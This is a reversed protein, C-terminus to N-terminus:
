REQNPSLTGKDDRDSLITESRARVLINLVKKALEAIEPSSLEDTAYRQIISLSVDYDEGLIKGAEFRKRIYEIILKRSGSSTVFRLKSLLSITDPKDFNPDSKIIGDIATRRILWYRHHAVNHIVLLDAPIRGKKLLDAALRVAYLLVDQHRDNLAHKLDDESINLQYESIKQVAFKRVSANFDRLLSTAIRSSRQNAPVSRLYIEFALTRLHAPEAKELIFEEVLGFSYQNNGQGILTVLQDIEKSLLDQRFAELSFPPYESLFDAREKRIEEWEAPSFDEIKMLALLELATSRSNIGGWKILTKVIAKVDRPQLVAKKRGHLRNSLDSPHLNIAEALSRQTPPKTGELPSISRLIEQVRERFKALSTEERNILPAGPLHKTLVRKIEEVEARLQEVQQRLDAIKSDDTM